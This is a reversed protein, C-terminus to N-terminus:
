MCPGQFVAVRVSISRSSLAPGGCVKVDMSKNLPLALALDGGFLYLSGRSAHVTLAM